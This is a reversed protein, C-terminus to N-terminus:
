AGGWGRVGRRKDQGRGLDGLPDEGARGRHRAGGPAVGQLRAAPPPAGAAARASAGPARGGREAARGGAGQEGAGAAAGGDAGAVRGGRPVVGGSSVGDVTPVLTPDAPGM